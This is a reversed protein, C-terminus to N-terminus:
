TRNGGKKLYSFFTEKEIRVGQKGFRVVAGANEAIKMVHYRSLNTEAMMGQVSRLRANPNEQLKRM